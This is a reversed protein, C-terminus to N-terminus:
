RSSPAAFTRPLAKSEGLRNFLEEIVEPKSVAVAAAKSLTTLLTALGIAVETGFLTRPTAMVIGNAKGLRQAERTYRDAISVPFM